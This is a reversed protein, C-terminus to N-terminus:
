TNLNETQFSTKRTSGRLIDHCHPEPNAFSKKKTHNKKKTQKQPKKQKNKPNKEFGTFWDYM